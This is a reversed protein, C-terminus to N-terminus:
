HAVGGKGTIENLKMFISTLYGMKCFSAFIIQGLKKSFLKVFSVM